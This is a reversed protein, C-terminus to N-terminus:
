WKYTRIKAKRLWVIITIVKKSCRCSWGWQASSGDAARQGSQYFRCPYCGGSSIDCETSFELTSPDDALVPSSFVLYFLCDLVQCTSPQASKWTGCIMDTAERVFIHKELRQCTINILVKRLPPLQDEQDLHSYSWHSSSMTCNQPLYKMWVNELSPLINIAFSLNYACYNDM